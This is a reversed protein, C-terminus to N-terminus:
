EIVMSFRLASSLFKAVAELELEVVSVELELEHLFVRNPVFHGEDLEFAQL